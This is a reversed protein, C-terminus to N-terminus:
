LLGMAQICGYFFRGQSKQQPTQGIVIKTFEPYDDSDSSQTEQGLTKYFLIHSVGIFDDNQKAPQAKIDNAFTTLDGVVEALFISGGEGVEQRVRFLHFKGVNLPVAFHYQYQNFLSEDNFTLVAGAKRLFANRAPDGARDKGDSTECLLDKQLSQAIIDRNQALNDGTAMASFSCLFPFLFMILFINKM